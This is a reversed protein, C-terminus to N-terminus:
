ESSAWRRYLTNHLGAFLLGGVAGYVLSEVLGIVFGAPTLWQFGPLALELLSDHLGTDPAVLGWLICLVFVVAGWLALAWTWVKVNLV